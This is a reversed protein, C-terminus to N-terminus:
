LLVHDAIHIDYREQTRVDFGGSVLTSGTYALYQM